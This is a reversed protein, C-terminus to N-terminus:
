GASVALNPQAEPVVVKSRVPSLTVGAAMTGSGTPLSTIRMGRIHTSTASPTVVMSFIGSTRKTPPRVTWVQTSGRAVRLTTTRSRGADDYVTVVVSAQKGGTNTLYLRHRYGSAIPLGAVAAPGTLEPAGAAYAFEAIGTADGLQYWAGGVVPQDSTLEVAVPQQRLASTIDIVEVRGASLALKAMGAPAFTGSPTILRVRVTADHQPSLVSLRVPSVKGPIASVITRTSPGTSRPVWELGRPILGNVLRDSVAAAVRGSLTEVHVVFNAVGPALDSLSLRVQGRGPVFVGRGAPAPLAGGPGFLLVDVSAPSDEPNTLTVVSLRGVGSGGGVFWEDTGAAVCEMAALGRTRGQDGLTFQDLTLGPALSGIGTAVVPPLPMGSTSLTQSRGAVSIAKSQSAGKPPMTVLQAAGTSGAAGGSGAAGRKGGLGPAVFGTVVSTILANAIPDPCVLRTSAVAEVSVPPPERDAVVLPRLASGLVVVVAGAAVVVWPARIM